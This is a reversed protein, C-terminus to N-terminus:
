TIQLATLLEITVGKFHTLTQILLFLASTPVSFSVLALLAMAVAPRTNLLMSQLWVLSSCVDSGYTPHWKKEWEMWHQPPIYNIEEMRMQHIRKRLVLMDEDAMNPRESEDSISAKVGVRRKKNKMNRRIHASNPKQLKRQLPALGCSCQSNPGSIKNGAALAKVDM